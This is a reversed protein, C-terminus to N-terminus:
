VVSKGAVHDIFLAPVGSPDIMFHIEHAGNSPTWAGTYTPAAAPDGVKVVLTGDGFLEIDVVESLDFNAIFLIYTTAPNPPTPYETFEFQGSIGFVSTLPFAKTVGLFDTASVTNMSMTGPVFTVTAAGPGFISSFTWGCVPGPSLGSIAGECALFCDSFLDAFICGAPAKSGPSGSPWLGSAPGGFPAIMPRM